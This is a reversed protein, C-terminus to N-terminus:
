LLIGVEIVNSLRHAHSCRERNSVSNYTICFATYVSLLASIIARPIIDAVSATHFRSLPVHRIGYMLDHVGWISLEVMGHWTGLIIHFWSAEM